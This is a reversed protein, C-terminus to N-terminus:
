GTASWWMKADKLVGRIREAVDEATELLERLTDYEEMDEIPQEAALRLAATLVVPTPVSAGIAKVAEEVYAATTDGLRRRHPESLYECVRLIFAQPSEGHAPTPAAERM